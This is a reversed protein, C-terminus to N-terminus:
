SWRRSCRVKRWQSHDRKVQAALVPFTAMAPTMVRDSLEEAEAVDHTSLIVTTGGARLERVLGHLEVRTAV